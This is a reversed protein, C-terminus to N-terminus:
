YSELNKNASLTQYSSIHALEEEKIFSDRMKVCSTADIIHTSPGKQTGLMCSKAQAVMCDSALLKTKNTIQIQM